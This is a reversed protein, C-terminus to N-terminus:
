SKLEKKIFEMQDVMGLREYLFALEEFLLNRKQIDEGAANFGDALAKFASDYKKQLSYLKSLSIYLLPDFSYRLARKVINIANELKDNVIERSVKNMIDESDINIRGLIERAIFEPGMKCYIDFKKLFRLITTDTEGDIEAQRYFEHMKYCSKNKVTTVLGRSIKEEFDQQSRFYYHNIQISEGTCYTNPGIIPIFHENVANKNNKYIFHHPSSVKEVFAPQVISKILTHGKLCNTYAEITRCDPRTIHGSSGFLKWSLGVAPYDIFNDLYETIDSTSKINIYEDIDIFAVWRAQDKFHKLFTAYASLQQNETLKIDHVEVIGAKIYDKLVEKISITSNNDFVWIKEFGISFHFNVWDVIDPEDKAIVCIGAYVRNKNMVFRM